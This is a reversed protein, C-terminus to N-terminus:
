TRRIALIATDDSLPETAFDEAADMLSKCLV